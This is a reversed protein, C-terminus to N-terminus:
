IDIGDLSWDALLKPEVAIVRRSHPLLYARYEITEVVAEYVKRPVIRDEGAINLGYRTPGRYNRLIFPRVRGDIMDVRRAKIDIRRYQLSRVCSWALGACLLVALFELLLEGGGNARVASAAFALALASLVIAGAIDGLCAAQARWIQRPVLRGQRNALM